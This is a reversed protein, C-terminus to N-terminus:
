DINLLKKMSLYNILLVSISKNTKKGVCLCTGSHLPEPSLVEGELQLDTEYSGTRFFTKFATDVILNYCVHIFVFEEMCALM